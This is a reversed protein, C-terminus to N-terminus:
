IIELLYLDDENLTITTKYSGSSHIMVCGDSYILGLIYAKEPTDIDSFEGNYKIKNSM